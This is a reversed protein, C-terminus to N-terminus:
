VREGNGDPSKSECYDRLIQAIAMAAFQELSAGLNSAEQKFRAPNGVYIKTLTQCVLDALKAQDEDTLKM